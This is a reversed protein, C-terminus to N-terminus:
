DLLFHQCAKADHKGQQQQDCKLSQEAHAGDLPGGAIHDFLALFRHNQRHLQGIIDLARHGIEAQEHEALFGNVLFVIEVADFLGPLQEFPQLLQVGDSVICLYSLQHFLYFLIEVAESM